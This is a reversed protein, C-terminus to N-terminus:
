LDKETEEWDGVSVNWGIPVRATDQRETTDKPPMPPKHPKSKTATDIPSTIPEIGLVETKCCGMLLLLFLLRM